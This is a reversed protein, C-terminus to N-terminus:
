QQPTYTENELTTMFVDDLYVTRLIADKYWSLVAKSISTDKQTLEDSYNGVLEGDFGSYVNGESDTFSILMGAKTSDANKFLTFDVTFWEDLGIEAIVIKESKNSGYNRVVDIELDGDSDSDRLRVTYACANNNANTKMSFQFIIVSAANSEKTIYMKSSFGFASGLLGSANSSYEGNVVTTTSAASANKYAAAAVSVKLCKNVAGTPDSVTAFRFSNDTSGNNNIVNSALPDGDEFTSPQQVVPAPTELEPEEPLTENNQIFSLNDFYMVTKTDRSYFTLQAYEIPATDTLAANRYTLDQGYYKGNVFYRAATMSGDEASGKYFVIKLNFWQGVAILGDDIIVSRDTNTSNRTIRVCKSGDDMEVVRFSISYSAATGKYFFMQNTWGAACSSDFYFDSEFTYSKNFGNAEASYDVNMINIYSVAFNTYGSFTEARLATNGEGLLTAVSDNSKEFDIYTNIAPSNVVVEINDASPCGDEFTMPGKETASGGATGFDVGGGTGDLPVFKKDIREVKMNDIYLKSAVLRYHLFTVRDIKREANEAFYLDAVSAPEGNIYIIALNEMRYFEVRLNIWENFNLGTALVDKQGSTYHEAVRIKKEGNNTYVNLSIAFSHKADGFFIQTMTNSTADTSEYMFDMDLVYCLGGGAPNMISVTSSSSSPACTGDLNKLVSIALAKDLADSEETQMPIPDDVVEIEIFNQCGKSISHTIGDPMVGDDFTIPDVAGAEDKIIRGLSMVTNIFYDFDEECYLKINGLGLLKCMNVLAGRAIATGNVDAEYTSPLAVLAGQSTSSSHGHYYSFGGDDVFCPLIKERTLNILAPADDILSQKLENQKSKSGVSDIIANITVWPNYVSCVHAAGEPNRMVEITGKVAVDAYPLPENFHQYLSSIKFLGNVANYSVTDEWMGTAPYQLEAFVEFMRKIVADGAQRIQSHQAALTNGSGYSDSHIDLARIYSEFADPSQLYEPLLSTATPTIKSVAVVSSTGFRSTLADASVLDPEEGNSGTVGNPTDYLPVGGLKSIMSTSWGLDRGRRSVSINKGWQPHYFFGDEPDQLSQAFVLLKQKMSDPIADQWKGDYKDFMGDSALMNLLQVTSEIDPLFGDTDRASNSYYFGGTVPDWLNALWIYTEDDFCDLFMRLANATDEGHEKAIKKLYEDRMENRAANARERYTIYGSAVVGNKVDLTNDKVYESFVLDTAAEFGAEDDYAIAMQSGNSFIAYRSSLEISDEVRELYKYAKGSVASGTNGIVIVNQAPEASSDSIHVDAGTYGRIIKSIDNAFAQAEADAYVVTVEVGPSFVAGGSDKDGAGNCSFLCLACIVLALVFCFVKKM